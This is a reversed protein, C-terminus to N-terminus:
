NLRKNLPIIWELNTYHNDFLIGNKHKVRTAGIPNDLYTQAVLTHVMRRISGTRLYITVEERGTRTILPVLYKGTKNNFIGGDETVKIREISPHQKIAEYIMSYRNDKLYILM